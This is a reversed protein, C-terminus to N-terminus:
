YFKTIWFNYATSASTATTIGVPINLSTVSQKYARLKIASYIGSGRGVGASPGPILISGDYLMQVAPDIVEPSHMYLMGLASGQAYGDMGSETYTYSYSPYTPSQSYLGGYGATASGNPSYAAGSTGGIVILYQDTGLAAYDTTITTGSEASSLVQRAAVTLSAYVTQGQYVGTGQVWKINTFGTPTNYVPYTTSSRLFQVFLVTDGLEVTPMTMSTGYGNTVHRKYNIRNYAVGSAADGFNLGSGWLIRIAGGAGRMGRYSASGGSPAGSGGGGPTGVANPANNFNDATPTIFLAESGGLSSGLNGDKISQTASNTGGTGSTGLGYWLTGGGSGGIISNTYSAGGGGGGGTGAVGAGATTGGAGGNGAYGGAGGGGSSNDTGASGAGGAGGSFKVTGVGSAAAGGAGGAGATATSTRGTGGRGGQASLLITAGRQLNAFPGAAGNSGATTGQSSQSPILVSLTEGPTVAISNSYSLGGGGGGGASAGASTSCGGGAGGAGIAVAAISTVGNPIRISYTTQANTLTSTPLSYLTIGGDAQAPPITDKLIGKLRDQLIM